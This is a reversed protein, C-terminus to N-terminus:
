NVLSLIAWFRATTLDCLRPPVVSSCLHVCILLSWYDRPSDAATHTHRVLRGADDYADVTTVGNPMTTTVARGAGDYAYATVGGDWDEVWTLRNAADYTYTVTQGSPYVIYIRNGALDYTYAMTGTVPDDVAILRYLDGRGSRQLSAGCEYLYTTVGVSDTM